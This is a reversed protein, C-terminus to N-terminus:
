KDKHGKTLASVPALLFRRDEMTSLWALLRELTRPSSHGMVVVQGQERALGQGLAGSAGVISVRPPLPM